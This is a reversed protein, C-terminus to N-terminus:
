LSEETYEYVVLGSPIKPFFYTAKQPMFEFNEACKKIVEPYIPNILFAMELGEMEVMEICRFPNIEYILQADPALKLIEEFLLKHLAYVNVDQLARTTGKSILRNYGHENLELLFRGKNKVVLGFRHLPKESEKKNCEKQEMMLYDVPNEEIRSVKFYKALENFFVEYDINPLEKIVRHPAYILLGPDDFAVFGTLIYKYPEINQGKNGKGAEFTRKKDRLLKKATQYRHHGDAIYLTKDEFLNTLGEQWDTRWLENLVGDITVISLDPEKNGNRIENTFCQRLIQEKDSFILFIPSLQANTANLLSIRDEIPKKFTREHPLIQTDSDNENPIETLALLTLREMQVGRVDTFRQRLWYASVKGEKVFIQKDKWDKFLEGAREYRNKKSCDVPLDIHVFNYESRKALTDRIEPSIIDYPPTIVHSLDQIKEINYRLAKFGRVLPM